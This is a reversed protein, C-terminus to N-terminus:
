TEGHEESGLTKTDHPLQSFLLVPKDLAALRLELEHRLERLSDARVDGASETWGLIEDGKGYFVEVIRYPEENEDTPDEIVRFNWGVFEPSKMDEELLATGQWGELVDNLLRDPVDPRKTLGELNARHLVEEVNLGPLWTHFINTVIDELIDYLDWGIEDLQASVEVHPALRWGPCTKLDERLQKLEATRALLKQHAEVGLAAREDERSTNLAPNVVYQRLEATHARLARIRAALTETEDM